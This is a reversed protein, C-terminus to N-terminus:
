DRGRRSRRKSALNYVISEREFMEMLCKDSAQCYDEAYAVIAREDRGVLKCPLVAHWRDMIIMVKRKVDEFHLPHAEAVLELVAVLCQNLFRACDFHRRLHLQYRERVDANAFRFVSVKNKRKKAVNVKFFKSEMTKVLSELPTFYTDFLGDAWRQRFILRSEEVDFIMNLNNCDKWIM